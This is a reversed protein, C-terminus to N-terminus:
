SKGFYKRWNIKAFNPGFQEAGAAGRRSTRSRADFSRIM